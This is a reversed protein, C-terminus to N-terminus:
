ESAETEKNRKRREREASVPDPPPWVSERRLEQDPRIRGKLVRRPELDGEHRIVGLDVAICHGAQGHRRAEHITDCYHVNQQCGDCFRVARNETVRMEEWRQDCIFNFRIGGAELRKGGCYEVPVRTVLALWITDLEAALEQLRKRRKREMLGKSKTATVLRVMVRLFEARRVSVADGQEDLWDAYVLLTTDDRPNEQIARIFGEDRM